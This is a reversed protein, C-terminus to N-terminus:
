CAIIVVYLVEAKIVIYCFTELQVLCFIITLKVIISVRRKQAMEILDQVTKSELVGMIARYMEMWLQRTVCDACLSCVETHELCETITVPGELITFIEDLRIESPKKSLVYGGRPGRISRIIGASKLIAVLQELYKGSINQRDAIVKVQLPGQGCSLALELVARM